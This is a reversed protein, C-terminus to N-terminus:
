TRSLASDLAVTIRATRSGIQHDPDTIVYVNGARVVYVRVSRDHINGTMAARLASAGQKCVAEDSILAILEPQTKKLGYTQRINESDRESETAIETVYALLNVGYTDAPRCSITGPSAALAPRCALSLPLLLATFVTRRTM